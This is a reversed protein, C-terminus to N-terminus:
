PREIRVRYYGSADRADPDIVTAQDGDIEPPGAPVVADWTAAAAGPNSQRVVTYDRGAVVPRYVLERHTPHGAVPRVEFIFREHRNTPNLGAIYRFSNNQGTHTPDADPAADPNDLGFHLVQWGDPLGDAAYAGFNDPDVNLVTLAGAGHIGRYTAGFAAPTDQYVIGAAAHGAADISDLPWAASDWVPDAPDLRTRIGDHHVAAARLQTAAEEEVESPDADLALATIETLQGLYGHRVTQEPAAIASIGGFGGLSGHLTLNGAASWGGGADLTATELTVEAFGPVSTALVLGIIFLIRHPYLTM